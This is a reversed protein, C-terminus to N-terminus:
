KGGKKPKWGAAKAAALTAPNSNIELETGNEKVYTIMVEDLTKKDKSM